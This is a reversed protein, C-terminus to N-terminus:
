SADGHEHAPVPPPHPSHGVDEARGRFVTYGLHNHASVFGPLAIRGAAEMVECGDPARRAVEESPGVAAFRDGDVLVAGPAHVTGAADMTVVAADRILLTM